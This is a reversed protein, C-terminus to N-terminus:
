PQYPRGAIRLGQASLQRAKAERIGRVREILDPWDVFPRVAREALIADALPPGIGRLQELQARNIRALDLETAQALGAMLALTALAVAAAQRTNLRAAGPAPPALGM